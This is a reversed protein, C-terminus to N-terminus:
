IASSASITASLVTCTKRIEGVLKATKLQTAIDSQTTTDELEHM